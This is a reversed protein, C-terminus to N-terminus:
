LVCFYFASMIFTKEKMILLISTYKKNHSVLYNKLPLCSVMIGFIPFFALINHVSSGFAMLIASLLVSSLCKHIDVNDINV